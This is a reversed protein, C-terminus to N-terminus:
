LDYICRAYNNVAKSDYCVGYEIPFTIQWSLGGGGETASWYHCTNTIDAFMTFGDVRELQGRHAFIIQLERQTPLRWSGASLGNASYTACGSNATGTDGNESTNADAAWGSTAAWDMPVLGLNTPAVVFKRSVKANVYLASTGYTGKIYTGQALATSRATTQQHRRVRGDIKSASLEEVSKVSGEPMSSCDVIANGGEVYVRQAFSEVSFIACLFLVIWFIVKIRM